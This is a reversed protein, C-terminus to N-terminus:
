TMMIIIWFIFKYLAYAAILSFIVLLSILLIKNNTSNKKIQNATSRLSASSPQSNDRSNISNMQSASHTNRNLLTKHEMHAHAKDFGTLGTIISELSKLNAKEADLLQQLRYKTSPSISINQSEIETIRAQLSHNVKSVKQLKIKDELISSSINSLLTKINSKSSNKVLYIDTHPIVESSVILDFIDSWITKISSACLVIDTTSVPQHFRQNHFEHELHNTKLEEQLKKWYLNRNVLFEHSYTSVVKLVDSVPTKNTVIHGVGVHGIRGSDDKHHYMLGLVRVPKSGVPHLTKFFILQDGENNISNFIEANNRIDLIEPSLHIGYLRNCGIAKMGDFTGFVVMDRKSTLVHTEDIGTAMKIIEAM